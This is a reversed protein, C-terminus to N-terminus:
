CSIKTECIKTQNRIKINNIKVFNLYYQPKSQNYTIGYQELNRIDWIDKEM